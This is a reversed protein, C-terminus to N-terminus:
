VSRRASIWADGEIPLMSLGVIVRHGFRHVPEVLGFQDAALAEPAVGVVDFERGEAVDVPEVFRRSWLSSSSM